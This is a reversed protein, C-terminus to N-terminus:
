ANQTEKGACCKKYKKGSGCPCPDNRGVKPSQRLFPAPPVISGDVFYWKGDSERRFEAVEHHERRVNDTSFHAVFEVTGESDKEGGDTVKKVEFGLWDSGTAWDRVGKEDYEERKDPAITEQIYGLQATAFATYRSRMLAEATTPTAEGKLYPECCESFEKGSDCPCQAM